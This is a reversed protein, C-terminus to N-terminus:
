QLAETRVGLHPDRLRHEVSARDATDGAANLLGNAKDRDEASPHDLLGREAPHTAQKRGAEFVSLAYLIERPDCVGMQEALIDRASRDLVTASVREADVRHQQISQRLTEVYERRAVVVAAMWALLVVINLWSVQRASVGGWTALVLVAVGSLGDGLRWVVTDIFAKVPLKVAAAVPLYLLEVTSKDISYRLVQDSGRLVIAAWLTGFVLVAASGGLLALPVVFLAPGIGFARLFRSTMLLQVLLCAIGAYFYFDGLFRGIANKDMAFRAQTFAEFQWNATTTAISSLCILATIARLYPSSRVLRLSETLSHDAGSAPAASASLGDAAGAPAAEPLIAAQQRFLVVVLAVCVLLLGAMALLVGEAEFRGVLHRTLYGGCIFGAIAGSGVLGFLRKAQRTTLVENALTWIQAPALVGFIGVWVYFAPYLWATKAYHALYWFGLATLAFSLLSGVLLTQLSTRRALRVYAAIVVGVLLAIAITVYPLNVAAYQGLFLASRAAKGVVYSAIILFLCAFLLGGRRLDGRHLHLLREILRTMARGALPGVPRL